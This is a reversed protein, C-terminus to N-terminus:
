NGTKILINVRRNKSMAKLNYTGDSNEDAELPNTEGRSETLIKTKVGEKTLYDKVSKARKLGLNKNYEANGKTDTHGIILLYDQPNSKLYIKLSDAYIKFSKSPKFAESDYEFKALKDTYTINKFSSQVQALFSSDAEATSTNEVTSDVPPVYGTINFSLPEGLSDTLSMLDKVEMRNKPLKYEGWLKDVIAMARAVGLNKYLKQQDASKKESERYYGTVELKAEPNEAMFEAVLSLFKDNGDIAVPEHSAFDFYFQPYNKLILYDKATLNLTEPVTKLFVTDLSPEAPKCEGKVDCVYYNRAFIVWVAFVLLGLWFRWMKLLFM